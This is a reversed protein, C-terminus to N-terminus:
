QQKELEEKRLKAKDIDIKMKPDLKYSFELNVPNSESKKLDDLFLHGKSFEIHKNLAKALCYCIQKLDLYGLASTVQKSDLSQGLDMAKKKEDKDLMPSWKKKPQEVPKQEEEEVLQKQYETNSINM